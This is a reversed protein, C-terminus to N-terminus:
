TIKEHHNTKQVTLIIGGLSLIFISVIITIALNLYHPLYVSSQYVPYDSNNYLVEFSIKQYKPLISTFFPLRPFNIKQRGFPPLTKIQYQWNNQPFSIIINDISNIDTNSIVLSPDQRFDTKEFELSPPVQSSKLEETAFNINVTKIDKNNKYSGPPSPYQSDHGHIVFAFHNLDLDSFYDIGNTTKEWTPDVSIWRSKAHEYYQPWAHLIDTGQNVPKIKPNNTYAFGEVERAPIGKARALTVFLDTFETCLATDPNLLAELAGQRKVTSGFNYNYNLTKVVYDYIQRPTNLNQAILAISSDSVPWYKDEKILDASPPDDTKKPDVSTIKVQGKVTIELNQGPKLYYKALWNGDSDVTINQPKPDISAFSVKQSGTTPPVAIETDVPDKESNDIFYKLDFDFLQFNGFAFLIRKNRLSAGSLNIKTYG